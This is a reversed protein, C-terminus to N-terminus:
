RWESESGMGWKENRMLEYYHAFAAGRPTHYKGNSHQEEDTWKARAIPDHMDALALQTAQKFRERHLTQLETPPTHQLTQYRVITTGYRQSCVLKKNEKM